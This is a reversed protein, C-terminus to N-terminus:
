GLLTLVNQEDLNSQSLLAATHNALLEQRATEGADEASAADALADEISIGDQTAAVGGDLVEALADANESLQEEIEAQATELVEPDLEALAGAEAVVSLAAEESDAVLAGEDTITEEGPANLAATQAAAVAQDTARNVEFNSLRASGLGFNALGLTGGLAGLGSRVDAPEDAGNIYTAATDVGDYVIRVSHQQWKSTNESDALHSITAGGITLDLSDGAGPLFLDFKIEMPGSFGQKTQVAGFGGASNPYLIGDSVSLTSSYTSDWNDTTSFNDTFRGSWSPLEADTTDAADTTDDSAAPDAADDSPSPFEGTEDTLGVLSSQLQSFEDNFAALDDETAGPDAALDRLEGLRTLIQAAQELAAGRRQLMSMEDQHAFSALRQTAASLNKQWDNEAPSYGGHDDAAAAAHAQNARAFAARMLATAEYTQQRALPSFSVTDFSSM